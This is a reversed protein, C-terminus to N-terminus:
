DYAISNLIEAGVEVTKQIGPGGGILPNLEVFDFAVTQSNMGKILTNMQELTMGAKVPTGTAPAIKPDLADIDLSIHFNAYKNDTKIEDVVKDMDHLSDMRYQKINLRKLVEEEDPEVDRLGIYTIQSPDLSKKGKVFPKMIGLLSAVGMGHANGSNSTLPTNIDAHADVWLVHLNEVTDVSAQISGASVTHDGGITLPFEQNKLSRTAYHYLCYNGLNLDNFFHADMKTKNFPFNLKHLLYDGALEVGRKEQGQCCKALIVRINRM